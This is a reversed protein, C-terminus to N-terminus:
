PTACSFHFSPKKKQLKTTLASAVDLDFRTAKDPNMMWRRSTTTQRLYKTSGNTPDTRQVIAKAFAPDPGPTALTGAIVGSYRDILRYSWPGSESLGDFRSATHLAQYGEMREYGKAEAISKIKEGLLAVDFPKKFM